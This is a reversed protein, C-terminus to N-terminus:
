LSVEFLFAFYVYANFHKRDRDTSHFWFLFRADIKLDDSMRVFVLLSLVFNIM